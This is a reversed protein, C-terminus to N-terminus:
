NLSGLYAYFGKGSSSDALIELDEGAYSISRIVPDGDINWVEFCLLTIDFDQVTSIIVDTQAGKEISKGVFVPM